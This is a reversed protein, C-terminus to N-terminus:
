HRCEYEGLVSVRESFTMYKRLGHPQQAVVGIDTELLFPIIIRRGKMANGNIMELEHRAQWYQKTSQEGKGKQMALRTNHIFKPRCGTLNCAIYRRKIHMYTYEGIHKHCVHKHGHWQNEPGQKRYQQEPTVLRHIPRTWAQIHHMCEITLHTAHHVTFAPVVHGCGQLNNIGM